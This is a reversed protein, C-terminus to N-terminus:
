TTLLADYFLGLSLFSQILYIHSIYIMYGIFNTYTLYTQFLIHIQRSARQCEQNMNPKAEFKSGSVLHGSQSM